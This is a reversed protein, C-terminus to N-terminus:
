AARRERLRAVSARFAAAEPELHFHRFDAIAAQARRRWYRREDGDARRWEEICALMDRLRVDRMAPMM